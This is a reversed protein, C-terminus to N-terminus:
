TMIIVVLIHIPYFFNNLYLMRRFEQRFSGRWPTTHVNSDINEDFVRQSRLFQGHPLGRVSICLHHWCCRVTRAKGIERLWLCNGGPTKVGTCTWKPSINLEQRQINGFLVWDRRGGNVASRVRRDGRLHSIHAIPPSAERDYLRRFSSCDCRACEADRRKGCRGAGGGFVDIPMWDPWRNGVSSIHIVACCPQNFFWRPFRQKRRGTDSVKARERAV